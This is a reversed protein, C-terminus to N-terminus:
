IALRLTWSRPIRVFSLFLKAFLQAVLMFYRLIVTFRKGRKWAPGEFVFDWQHQVAISSFPRFSLPLLLLSREVMARATRPIQVRLILFIRRSVWVRENGEHNYQSLFAFVVPNGICCVAVVPLIFLSWGPYVKLRMAPALSHNVKLVEIPRKM